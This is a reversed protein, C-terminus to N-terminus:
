RLAYLHVELDPVRTDVHLALADRMTLMEQWMPDSTNLEFYTTGQVPKLESPAVPLATLSIGSLSNRVLEVIRTNSSLKAAAIFTDSLEGASLSSTVSLVFRRSQVSLPDKIITRLLRRKEFLATDWTFEIVSDQQVLTLLNRLDAFLPSFNSYLKDVKLASAEPALEPSLAMLEARFRNLHVYLDYTSYRENQSTLDFWPMWSNLTQLWLYDLMLSQDSKQSQGAQIRKFLNQTRSVLLAHTEKVKDTLYRSAGYHLCAAIFARDLIVEGAETCELIRAVPILSHGSHDDHDSLLQVNLRAVDVELSTNEHTASDFVNISKTVYRSTGSEDECYDNNGQLALPLALYITNDVTGVPINIAVEKVTNFQTGDPFIGSCHTIALKGIKLLDTNISLETLGFFPAFHSLTDVNQRVYNQVFRDQQQFHQPAIFMGEKWVVKKHADM